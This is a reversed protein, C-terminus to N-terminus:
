SARCAAGYAWTTDPTSQVNAPLVFSLPHAPTLVGTTSFRRSPVGVGSDSRM